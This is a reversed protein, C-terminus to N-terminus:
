CVHGWTAAALCLSLTDHPSGFIVAVKRSDGHHTKYKYSIQTKWPGGQNQFGGCRRLSRAASTVAHGIFFPVELRMQAGNRGETLFLELANAFCTRPKCHELLTQKPKLLWVRPKQLLPQFPIQFKSLRCSYVLFVRFKRCAWHFSESGSRLCEFM